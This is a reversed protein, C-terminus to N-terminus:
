GNSKAGEEKLWAWLLWVMAGAEALTIPTLMGRNVMWSGPTIWDLALGGLVVYRELAFLLFIVPLRRRGRNWEALALLVWAPGIVAHAAVRLVTM